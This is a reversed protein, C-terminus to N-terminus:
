QTIRNARELAGRGFREPEGAWVGRRCTDAEYATPFFLFFFRTRSLRSMKTRCPAFWIIIVFFIDDMSDPAARMKNRLGRFRHRSADIRTKGRKNAARSFAFDRSEWSCLLLYFFPFLFFSITFTSQENPLALM